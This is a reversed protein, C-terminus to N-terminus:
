GRYSKIIKGAEIKYAKYKEEFMSIKELASSSKLKVNGAGKGIFEMYEKGIKYCPTWPTDSFNVCKKSSLATELFAYEKTNFTAMGVKIKKLKKLKLIPLFAPFDTKNIVFGFALIELNPLEELFNFNEIPQKWDLTGDIYLYRLSKLGRLGDFNSVRRLNEFHLSKIKPLRQFPSLDSFGSVYEFIVEELNRLNAIFEVDKARFFTLRLRKLQKLKQIEEIQEKSPDHLTIEEINPCEFVQNWYKDHKSITLIKVKSKEKINKDASFSYRGVNPIITWYDGTRDLLDGFHHKM